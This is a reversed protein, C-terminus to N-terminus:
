LQVAATGLEAFEVVVKSGPAVWGCGSYSGTTVVDGAQLGIGRRSLHNAMWVLPILPDVLAHGGLAQHVVDGNVIIRLPLTKLELAKWDAAPASLVLAENMLNDALRDLLPAADFDALRCDCLEIAAHASAVAQLVQGRTYTTGAPLARALTFAVEAEIGIRKSGVTRLAPPALPAGDRLLNVTPIPASWGSSTDPMSAKWGGVYAGLRKLVQLQIVYAEDESRPAYEAPLAAPRPQQGARLALLLEVAQNM